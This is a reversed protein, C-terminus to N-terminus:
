GLIEANQQIWVAIEPYDLLDDNIRLADNVMATTYELPARKMYELISGFTDENIRASLGISVALLAQRSDPIRTTTPHKIVEDLDPLDAYYEIYAKFQTAAPLGVCGAVLPWVKRVNAKTEHMLLSVFEWTRSSAFADANKLRAQVDDHTSQMEALYQSSFRIFAIVSTHINNNLAWHSWEEADIMVYLHMVRNNLASGMKNVLARDTIYNGAACIWVNDPLIYEGLQRDNLLQYSAAQTSQDAQNIEDLFLVTPPCGEQPLEAPPNFETHKDVVTPVGRLDVFERQSLRIDMFVLDFKQCMQEVSKSKTTSPNGHMMVPTNIKWAYELQSALKKPTVEIVHQRSM